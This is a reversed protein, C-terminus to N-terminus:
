RFANEGHQGRGQSDEAERGLESREQNCRPCWRQPGIRMGLGEQFDQQLFYIPGGTAFVAMGLTDILAVDDVTRPHLRPLATPKEQGSFASQM